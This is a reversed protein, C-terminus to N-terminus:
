PDFEELVALGTEPAVSSLTTIEQTIQEVEPQATRYIDSAADEGLLVM